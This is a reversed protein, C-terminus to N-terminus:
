RKINSNPCPSDDEDGGKKKFYYEAFELVTSPIMEEKVLPITMILAGPRKKTKPLSM